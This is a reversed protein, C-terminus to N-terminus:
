QNAPVGPIPTTPIPQVIKLTPLYLIFDENFKTQLLNIEKQLDQATLNKWWSQFYIKKATENAGFFTNIEAASYHLYPECQAKKLEIKM